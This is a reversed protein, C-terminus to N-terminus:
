RSRSDFAPCTQLSNDNHDTKRDGEFLTMASLGVDVVFKAEQGVAIKAVFVSAIILLIVFIILNYLVRDRVSERFTNYAISLVKM